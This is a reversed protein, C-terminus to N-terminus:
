RHGVDLEFPTLLGAKRSPEKGEQSVTLFGSRRLAQWIFLVSWNMQIPARDCSFSCWSSRVRAWRAAAAPFFSLKEGGRRASRLAHVVVGGRSPFPSCRRGSRAGGQRVDVAQDHVEKAVLLSQVLPFVALANAVELGVHVRVVVGDHPQEGRGERVVAELLRLGLVGRLGRQDLLDPLLHVVGHVLSDHLGGRVHWNLRHEREVGGVEERPDPRVSLFPTECLTGM